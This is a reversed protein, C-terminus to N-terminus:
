LLGRAKLAKEQDDPKNKFIEADGQISPSAKKSELMLAFLRSKLWGSKNGKWQAACWDRTEKEWDVQPSWSIQDRIVM